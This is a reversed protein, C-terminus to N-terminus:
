FNISSLNEFTGGEDNSVGGGGSMDLLKNNTIEGGFMRFVGRNDVGGVNDSIEGDYLLFLGNNVVGCMHKSILGKHLIFQGAEDVTVAYDNSGTSTVVIGDFELVGKANVTITSVRVIHSWVLPNGSEKHIDGILKCYEEATKSSTLTINKNAPIDLTETLIIDNNLAITFSKKTPANNVAERLEADTSVIKDSSGSVFPSVNDVASTFCSFVLSLTFLLVIFLLGRKGHFSHFNFM